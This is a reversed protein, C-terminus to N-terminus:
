KVVKKIEEQSVGAQTLIAKFFVKGNSVKGLGKAIDEVTGDLDFTFGYGSAVKTNLRKITDGVKDKNKSLYEAYGLYPSTFPTGGDVEEVEEIDKVEEKSVEPDVVEGGGPIEFNKVEEIVGKEKKTKKKPEEDIVDPEFQLDTGEYLKLALGSIISAVKAKARQVAKNVMSSDIFKTAVYGQGKVVDQIPYDEIITKGFFTARIRITHSCYTVRYQETQIMGDTDLIFEGKANKAPQETLIVASDTFVLGGYKNYIKEFSASPDQQYIMREMVAWPIYSANKIKEIHKELEKGQESVGNYNDNFQKLWKEANFEM